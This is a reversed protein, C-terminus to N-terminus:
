VSLCVCVCGECLDALGGVQQTSKWEKGLCGGLGIEM